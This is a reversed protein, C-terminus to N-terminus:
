QSLYYGSVTCNYVIEMQKKKTSTEIRNATTCKHGFGTNCVIMSSDIKREIIKKKNQKKRETLLLGNSFDDYRNPKTM